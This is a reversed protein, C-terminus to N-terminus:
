SQIDNRLLRELEEGTDKTSQILDDESDHIAHQQLLLESDHKCFAQAARRAEDETRGLTTLVAESMSLSSQLTERFILHIGLDM